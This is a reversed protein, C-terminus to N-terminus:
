RPVPAASPRELAAAARVIERDDHESDVTQRLLQRAHNSTEAVVVLELHVVLHVGEVVPDDVAVDAQRM